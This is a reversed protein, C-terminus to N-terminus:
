RHRRRAAGSRYISSRTSATPGEIDDHLTGLQRDVARRVLESM